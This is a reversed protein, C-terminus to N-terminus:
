VRIPMLFGAYLPAFCHIQVTLINFNKSPIGVLVECLFNTFLDTQRQAYRGYALEAVPFGSYIDTFDYPTGIYENDL